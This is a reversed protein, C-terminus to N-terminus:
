LFGHARLVSHGGTGSVRLTSIMFSPAHAGLVSRSGRTGIPSRNGLGSPDFDYLEPRSGRTCTTLGSFGQRPLEVVPAAGRGYRGRVHFRYARRDAAIRPLSHVVYLGARIRWAVDDPTRASCVLLHSGSRSRQAPRPGFCSSHDLSQRRTDRDPPQATRFARLVLLSSISNPCKPTQGGSIAQSESKTGKTAKQELSTQASCSRGESETRSSFRLSNSCLTVASVFAILCLVLVAPLDTKFWPVCRGCPLQPSM